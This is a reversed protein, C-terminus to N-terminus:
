MRANFWWSMASIKQYPMLPKQAGSRLAGGRGGFFKAKYKVKNTNNLTPSTASNLCFNMHVQSLIITHRTSLLTPM